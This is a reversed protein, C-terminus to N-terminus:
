NAPVDLYLTVAEGGHGITTASVTYRNVSSTVSASTIGAPLTVTVTILTGTADPATVATESVQKLYHVESQRVTILTNVTLNAGSATQVHAPPDWMCWLVNASAAVQGAVFLGGAAVVAAVVRGVKM